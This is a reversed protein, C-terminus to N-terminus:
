LQGLGWIQIWALALKRMILPSCQAHALAPVRVLLDGQRQLLGLRPVRHGLDAPLVPDALLREAAPLLLEPLHRRALDLLHLLELLLVPQKDEFSM